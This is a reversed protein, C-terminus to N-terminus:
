RLPQISVATFDYCSQYSDEPAAILGLFSCSLSALSVHIVSLLQIAADASNAGM